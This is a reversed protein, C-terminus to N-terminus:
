PAAETSLWRLAADAVNAAALDDIYHGLAERANRQSELVAPLGAAGEAYATLSMSAVRNASQVLRRGRDSRELAAQRDRAAAAIQAASERRVVNLEALARDRNAQALAVPGRNQNFLPVPLAIGITPLFGPEGGTPDHTEFGLLLSPAAFWSRRELALGQEEGALAAEAAAVALATGGNAPLSDPPPVLATPGRRGSLHRPYLYM